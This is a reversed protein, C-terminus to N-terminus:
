NKVTDRMTHGDDSKKAFFRRVLLGDAWLEPNLVDDVSLDTLDLRYSEYSDFRTKLPTAAVESAGVQEKAYEQLAEAGTGPPLRSIFLSLRKVSKVAKIVSTKQLGVVSKNGHNAKAAAKSTANKGRKAKNAFSWGEEPVAAPTAAVAAYSM